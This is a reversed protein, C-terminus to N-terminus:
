VRPQLSDVVFGHVREDLRAAHDKDLITYKGSVAKGTEDMVPDVRATSTLHLARTGDFLSILAFLLAFLWVPWWYFLSSHQIVRIFRDGAPPQTPTPVPSKSIPVTSM